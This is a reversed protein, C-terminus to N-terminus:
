KPSKGQLGTTLVKCELAPLSSEIGPQPCMAQLWFVLIYFLLLVTVLEIFVKFITRM